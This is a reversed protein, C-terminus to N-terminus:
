LQVYWYWKSDELVFEAAQIAEEKLSQKPAVNENVQNAKQTELGCLCNVARRWTPLEINFRTM